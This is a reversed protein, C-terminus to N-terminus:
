LFQQFHEGNCNLCLNVRRKMNEFVHQLMRADIRECEATIREKLDDLTHVPTKFVANKLYPFLFYDSCTLDCSRPPWLDKSIVRDDYFQALYNLTRQATHPRAGDQQFYGEHLEDDHLQNIFPELINNQYREANITGDFFIPGIIRRRSMAVWIGVKLPHLGSEVFYHPNDNSWLRMNQSNVYGTLHFWSEDTFFTKDLIDNNNLHNVFWNCYVRRKNYDPPLLEQYVHVKYPHMGLDKKLINRCTGYSLNVQQSLKRVSTSPEQEMAMRVQEVNNANRVRRPRIDQKRNVSGTERFKQLVRNLQKFFANNDVVVNPFRERFELLCAAASYSWEGNELREGNRFYSQIIFVKQEQNFM